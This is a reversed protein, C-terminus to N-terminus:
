GIGGSQEAITLRYLELYQRAIVKSDFCAITRERAQRGLMAATAPTCDLVWQIGKGLDRSDFPLAKYGTMQHIVIDKPGTADFCVVPTGCSMAEVLTKGFADQRSPAVFVDAASYALRLAAVDHLFGLYTHEIGISSLGTQSAQGFLVVHLRDRAPIEKLSEVFLNLGKHIDDIQFAGILVIKKDSPLALAQRAFDRDVPFFQGTDVNNGITTFTSGRFVESQRACNTLWQSIGVLKLHKPLSARKSAVILRTLDLALKSGLQPCHGCGQQYRICDLAYHCGGTLPWMDRMTWILPKRIKRFTGISVLGNIWHLHILDAERYSPHRTFDYGTLGTSFFVSNHKRYLLTPMNGLRAKIALWRRQMPTATICIVSPDADKNRGNTLLTSDIGLRRLGLHLWYAGRAAGDSLEGAVLHLVKM